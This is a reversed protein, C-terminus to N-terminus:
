IPTNFSTFVPSETIIINHDKFKDQDLNNIILSKYILEHKMFIDKLINISESCIWFHENTETSNSCLFCTDFGKLIDPYNRNLLDLTPLAYNSCKMRWSVHKSYSQSTAKQFPNYNMWDQTYEWNIRHELTFKKIIHLSQSGM